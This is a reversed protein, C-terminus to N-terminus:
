RAQATPMVKANECEFAHKHLVAVAELEAECVNASCLMSGIIPSITVPMPTSTRPLQREGVHRVETYDSMSGSRPSAMEASIDM